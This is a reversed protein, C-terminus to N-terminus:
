TTSIYKYIQVSRIDCACVTVRVTNYGHKSCIISSSAINILSSVLPWTSESNVNLWPMRIDKLEDVESLIVALFFNSSSIQKVGEPYGIEQLHM